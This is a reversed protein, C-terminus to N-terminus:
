AIFFAYQVLEWVLWLTLSPGTFCIWYVITIIIIVVNTKGFGKRYCVGALSLYEFLFGLLEVILLLVNITYGLTSTPIVRSTFVLVLLWPSITSMFLLDKSEYSTQDWLKFICSLSIFGLLYIILYQRALLVGPLLRYVFGPKLNSQKPIISEPNYLMPFDEVGNYNGFDLLFVENLGPDTVAIIAIIFVSHAEIELLLLLISM